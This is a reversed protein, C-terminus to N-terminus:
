AYRLECHVLFDHIGTLLEACVKNTRRSWYRKDSKERRVKEKM